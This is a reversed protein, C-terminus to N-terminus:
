TKINKRIRRSGLHTEGIMVFTGSEPQAVRCGHSVKWRGSLTQGARAVEWRWRLQERDSRGLLSHGVQVEKVSDACRQCEHAAGFQGKNKDRRPSTDITPKASGLIVVM